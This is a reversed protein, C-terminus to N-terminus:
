NGENKRLDREEFRVIRGNMKESWTFLGDCDEGFIVSINGDEDGDDVIDVVKGHKGKFPCELIVTVDDGKQLAM